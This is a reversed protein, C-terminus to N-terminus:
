DDACPASSSSAAAAAKRSARYADVLTSITICSSPRSAVIASVNSSARAVPRVIAETRYLACIIRVQLRSSRRARAGDRRLIAASSEDMYVDAKVPMHDAM